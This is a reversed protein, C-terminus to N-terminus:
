SNITSKAITQLALKIGKLHSNDGIPDYAWDSISFEFQDSIKQKRSFYKSNNNFYTINCVLQKDSFCECLSAYGGLYIKRTKNPALHTLGEILFGKELFTINPNAKRHFDPEPFIDTAKDPIQQNFKFDINRAVSKGFNTVCLCLINKYDDDLEIYVVVDPKQSQLAIKCSAFAAAASLCAAIASITNNNIIDSFINM